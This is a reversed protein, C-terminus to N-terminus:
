WDKEVRGGRGYKEEFIKRQLVREQQRLAELLAEVDAPVDETSGGVTGDARSGGARPSSEAGPRDAGASRSGDRPSEQTPDDDGAASTPGPRDRAEADRAAREESADEEREGEGEGESTEDGEGPGARDSGGEPKSDSPDADAGSSSADSPPESESPSPADDKSPPETSPDESPSGGAEERTDDSSPPRDEGGERPPPKMAKLARTVELNRRAGEITPDALLARRYDGLAEDLRGARRHANGRAFLARGRLADSPAEALARDFDEVARDWDGQAARALGRDYHLEPTPGDRAILRDFITEARKADGDNLAQVGTRAEPREREFLSEARAPAPAVAVTVAVAVATTVGPRARASRRVRLVTALTFLVLAPWLFWRFREEYVRVTRAELEARSLSALHRRLPGLDIGAGSGTPLAAVGGGAEAIAALAEPELRSLVTRGEADRVYGRREGDEFRPIPQGSTSGIGVVHVDIGAQQARRAAAAARGRHDEGDTVIVLARGAGPTPAAELLERAAGIAQAISTGGRPMVTPDARELQLRVASRDVTLPTLPIGITTFGVLGVRHGELQRLLDELELRARDLRNPKVDEALMSRSLDLAFVLEIGRGKRVETRHGYQPRALALTALLLAALGLAWQRRRTREPRDAETMARLMEPDLAAALRRRARRAYAGAAILLAVAALGLWLMEPAAFRV